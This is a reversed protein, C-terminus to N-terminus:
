SQCHKTNPWFNHTPMGTIKDGSKVKAAEAANRFPMYGLVGAFPRSIVIAYKEKKLIVQVLIERGIKKKLTKHSNHSTASSTASNCQTITPCCAIDIYGTELDFDLVRCKLASNRFRRADYSSSVLSQPTGPVSAPSDKASALPLANDTPVHANTGIAVGVLNRHRANHPDALEAVIGDKSRHAVTGELLLGIHLGATSTAEAVRDRDYLHQLLDAVHAPLAAWNDGMSGCVTAGKASLLIQSKAQGAGKPLLHFLKTRRDPMGPEPASMNKQSSLRQSLVDRAINTEVLESLPLFGSVGGGLDTVIAYAVIMDNKLKRTLVKSVRSYTMVTGKSLIREQQNDAEDESSGEDDVEMKEKDDDWAALATTKTATWNDDSDSDDKEVKRKKAARLVM